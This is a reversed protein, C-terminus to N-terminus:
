VWFLFGKKSILFRSCVLVEVRSTQMCAATGVQQVVMFRSTSQNASCILMEILWGIALLLQDPATKKYLVTLNTHEFVGSVVTNLTLLDRWLHYM